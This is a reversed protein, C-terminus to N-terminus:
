RYMHELRIFKPVYAIAPDAAVMDRCLNQLSRLEFPQNTEGIFADLLDLM